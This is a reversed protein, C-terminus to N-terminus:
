MDAILKQVADYYMECLEGFTCGEASELASFDIAELEARITEPAWAQLEEKSQAWSCVDDFVTQADIDYFKMIKSVKEGLELTNKDTKIKWRWKPPM